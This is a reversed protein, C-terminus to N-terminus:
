ARRRRAILGLAGLALFMVRSPEPVAVPDFFNLNAPKIPDPTSGAFVSAYSVAASDNPITFAANTFLGYASGPAPTGDFWIIAFSDGSSIGTTGGFPVSTLATISGDGGPDNSTPTTTITTLGTTYFYDDTTAGTSDTAFASTTTGPIFSYNGNSLFGNGTTDILIGWRLGNTAIGAANAFGTARAVATQGFQLTVTASVKGIAVLSLLSAVLYRLM